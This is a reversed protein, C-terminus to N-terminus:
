GVLFLCWKTRFMGVLCVCLVEDPGFINVDRAIATATDKSDGTIVMVRVGAGQCLKM